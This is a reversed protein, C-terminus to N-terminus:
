GQVEIVVNGREDLLAVCEPPIVITTDEEEVLAPGRVPAGLGARRLVRTTVYGAERSFYAPRARQGDEAPPAAANDPKVLDLIPLAPRVRATLHFGVLEVPAGPMHHGYRRAHEAEFREQLAAISGNPHREGSDPLAIRVRFHQGVYRLDAEVTFRVEDGPYGLQALETGAEATLSTVAAALADDALQALRARYTQVFQHGAPACLLGLASFVGPLPPVIVRRMGLSRALQAAHLPGSGGFALLTFDRVDHGRETSVARIARAM